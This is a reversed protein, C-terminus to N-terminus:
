LSGCCSSNARWIRPCRWARSASPRTSWISTVATLEDNAEAALVETDQTIFNAHVWDARSVRVSRDALRSEAGNMFTEADPLSPTQLEGATLALTCLALMLAATLMALIDRTLKM